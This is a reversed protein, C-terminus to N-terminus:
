ARRPQDLPVLAPAVVDALRLGALLTGWGLQRPCAGSVNGLLSASGLPRRPLLLPNTSTQAQSWGRRIRAAALTASRSAM